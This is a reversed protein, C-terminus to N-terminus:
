SRQSINRRPGTYTHIYIYIYAHMYTIEAEKALMDTRAQIHMCARMHTHMHAYIRTSLVHIEVSRRVSEASEAAAQIYRICVCVCVSIGLIYTLM